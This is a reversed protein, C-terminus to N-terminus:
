ALEYKYCEKYPVGDEDLSSGTLLKFMNDWNNYLIRSLKDKDDQNLKELIEGGEDYFGLLKNM